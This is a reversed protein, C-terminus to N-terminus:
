IGLGPIRKRNMTNLVLLVAIAIVTLIISFIAARLFEGEFVANYIALSLTETRGVINGGLMLSIGVEGVSRGFALLLGTVIGGKINPLIVKLLTQTRTKGLTAAADILTGDMQQRAAQVSKVMFPLGVVFVAVLVGSATFIIKFAFVEMLLHGLPGNKGLVLLLFFGLAMPPFIMPLTTIIEVVTKAPSKKGALYLGLPLGAALQLILAVLTVKLTLAIAPHTLYDTLAVHPM